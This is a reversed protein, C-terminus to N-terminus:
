KSHSCGCAGCGCIIWGCSLCEIDISNDLHGKCHWCHTVRSQRRATARVGQTPLNRARLFMEHTKIVEERRKQQEFVKAITTCSVDAGDLNIGDLVAGDLRAWRLKCHRLDSKTLNTNEFNICELYMGQLNAESLDPAIDPNSQRWKNWNTVGKILLSIHEENAM